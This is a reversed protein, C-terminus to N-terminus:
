RSIRCLYSSRDEYERFYSRELEATAQGEVELVTSTKFSSKYVGTARGTIAVVALRTSFAAGEGSAGDEVAM